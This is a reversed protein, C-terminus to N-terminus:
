SVFIVFCSFFKIFQVKDFNFNQEEFTGSFILLRNVFQSFINESNLICLSIMNSLLLKKLTIKVFPSIQVAVECFCIYLHGNLM